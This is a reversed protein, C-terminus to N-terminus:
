RVPARGPERPVVCWPAPPLEPARATIPVERASTVAPAQVELEAGRAELAVEFRSLAPDWSRSECGISADAGFTWRTHGVGFADLGAVVVDGGVLRAHLPIALKAAGIARQRVTVGTADVEILALDAADRGRYIGTAVFLTGDAGAALRAALGSPVEHAHSTTHRDLAFAWDVSAPPALRALVLDADYPSRLNAQAALVIAGDAAITADMATLRVGSDVQLEHARVLAGVEDFTAVLVSTSTRTNGVLTVTDDPASLTRAQTVGPLSISWRVAGGGDLRILATEGRAAAMVLEGDDLPTVSSARISSTGLVIERVRIPTGGADLWAVFLTQAPERSAVGSVVITGDRRETIAHLEAAAELLVSWTVADDIRAVWPTYSIPTRAGGEYSAYESARAGALLLAGDGGTTATTAVLSPPHQGPCAALLLAPWVLLWRLSAPSRFM